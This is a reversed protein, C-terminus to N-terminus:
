LLSLLRFPDVILWILAGAAALSGVALATLTIGLRPTLEMNIGVVLTRADPTALISSEAM